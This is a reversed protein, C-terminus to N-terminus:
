PIIARSHFLDDDDLQLRRLRLVLDHQVCHLREIAATLIGGIDSIFLSKGVLDRELRKDLESQGALHRYASNRLRHFGVLSVLANVDLKVNVPRHDIVRADHRELSQRLYRKHAQVPTFKNGHAVARILRRSNVAGLPLCVKNKPVAHERQVNRHLHRRGRGYVRRVNQTNVQADDLESHVAVTLRMSTLANLLTATLMATKPCTQLLRSGLRGLPVQLPETAALRPILTIHVVADAFMKNLLSENPLLCQCDFVQCMDPFSRLFHYSLGLTVLPKRPGEGLQTLEQRVLAFRRANAQVDNVRAICAPSARGATMAGFFVTTAL